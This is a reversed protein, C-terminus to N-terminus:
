KILWLKANFNISVEGNLDSEPRVRANGSEFNCCGSM